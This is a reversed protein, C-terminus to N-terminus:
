CVSRQSWRLSLDAQADAWDSWLRRQGCSSVSPGGSGMSHVAFVRILSPPYGPQDSDESTALIMKNTKYHHPENQRKGDEQWPNTTAQSQPVGHDLHDVYSKEVSQLNKWLSISANLCSIASSLQLNLLSPRGDWLVYGNVNTLM